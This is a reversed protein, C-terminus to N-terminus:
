GAWLWANSRRPAALAAAGGDGLAVQHARGNKKRDGASPPFAHRGGAAVRVAPPCVRALHQPM